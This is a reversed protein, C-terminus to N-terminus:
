RTGPPLVAPQANRPQLLAGPLFRPNLVSAPQTPAPADERQESEVKTRLESKRQLADTAMKTGPYRRCVLEYYFYASGPHGTRQYFEAIKFDRDAQQFSMSQLQNEIWKPNDDKGFEPYAGQATMLLKKSEEVTRLDYVTGGTMLQKCIVSQKVAQAAKDSNPYHHFLQSYYFDAEKYEARFFNITGLSFLAKEGMPGNIDHLRVTNLINVARGEADMFPMDNSFHVYSAPMVFWRNGKLQDHYEDMQKKTPILWHDAIESLGRCARQTFQSHPINVLLKTYNEEAGRYNKQARQCEAEFFLAEELVSKIMKKRSGLKPTWESVSEGTDSSNTVMEWFRFDDQTAIRHYLGEAEAYKKEQFLRQATDLKERSKADMPEHILGRGSLSISDKPGAGKDAQKQWPMTFGGGGGTACGAVMCVLLPAFTSM